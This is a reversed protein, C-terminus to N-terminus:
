HQALLIVPLIIVLTLTSPSPHVEQADELLVLQTAPPTARALTAM